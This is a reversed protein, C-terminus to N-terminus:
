CNIYRITSERNSMSATRNDGKHRTTGNKAESQITSVTTTNYIMISNTSNLIPFAKDIENLSSVQENIPKEFIRDDNGESQTLMTTNKISFNEMVQTTTELAEQEMEERILINCKSALNEINIVDEDTMNMKMMIHDRIKSKKNLVKALVSFKNCNVEQTVDIIEYHSKVEFFKPIYFVIPFIIVFMKYFKINEDTLISTEKLQCYFCIRIYREFSFSSLILTYIFM